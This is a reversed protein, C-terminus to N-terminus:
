AVSEGVRDDSVGLSTYMYLVRAGDAAARMYSTSDTECAKLSSSITEQIMLIDLKVLEFIQKLFSSKPSSGILRINLSLLIM